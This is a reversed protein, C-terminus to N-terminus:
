VPSVDIEHSAGLSDIQRIIQDVPRSVQIHGPPLYISVLQVSGDDARIGRSVLYDIADNKSTFMDTVIDDIVIATGAFGCNLKKM